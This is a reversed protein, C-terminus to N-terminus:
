RNEEAYRAAAKLLAGDTNHGERALWHLIDVLMDTGTYGVGSGGFLCRYTSALKAGRYARRAKRADHLPREPVPLGVHEIAVKLAM